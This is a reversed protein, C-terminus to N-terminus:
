LCMPPACTNPLKHPPLGFCTHKQSHDPLRPCRATAFCTERPTESECSFIARHQESLYDLEVRTPGLAGAGLLGDVDPGEPRVDFRLSQLLDEDDKIVAVPITGGLEVYAASNQALAPENPDTDCGQVCAATTLTMAEAEAQQNAVWQIRRARALEVCPGPDATPAAELDVLAFRPLSGWRADITRPWAPILLPGRATASDAGLRAVVRAWASESLVIPGTGTALVLALEVGSVNVDKVEDGRKCCTQPLPGEVTFADPVACTRLVIRTAALTVPGRLGFTDPPALATTEGGGFLTFRLPAYGSQGGRLGSTAAGLFASTTGQHRWFTIKSSTFHLEVSFARLFDGGLAGQPMTAADGAPGLPLAFVGVNRFTARQADPFEADLLDFGRRGPTTSTKMAADTLVTVPSATDVVMSFTATGGELRALALLAGEGPAGGLPARMLKIPEQDVTCCDGGCGAAGSLVVAVALGALAVTAWAAARLRRARATM